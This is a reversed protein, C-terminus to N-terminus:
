VAINILPDAPGWFSRVLKIAPNKEKADPQQLADDPKDVIRILCIAGGNGRRRDLIVSGRQGGKTAFGIEVSSTQGQELAPWDLDLTTEAVHGADIPKHISAGERLTLRGQNWAVPGQVQYQRRTDVRFDDRFELRETSAPMGASAPRGAEGAQASAGGCSLGLWIPLWLVFLGASILPLRM